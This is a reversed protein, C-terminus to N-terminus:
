LTPSHPNESSAASQFRFSKTWCVASTNVWCDFTTEAGCVALARARRCQSSHDSASGHGTFGGLVAGGGGRTGGEVDPRRQWPGHRDPLGAEPPGATRAEPPPKAVQNASDSHRGGLTASGRVPSTGRSRSAYALGVAPL